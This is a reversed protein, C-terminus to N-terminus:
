YVKPKNQAKYTLKINILDIVERVTELNYIEDDYLEIAFEDELAMLTEIDDLSDMGLSERTSGSDIQAECPLLDRLIRIIRDEVTM